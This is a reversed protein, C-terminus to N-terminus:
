TVDLRLRAARLSSKLYCSVEIVGSAELEAKDVKSAQSMELMNVAADALRVLGRAYTARVFIDPDTSLHRLNPLLYEPIFTANQPTISSV